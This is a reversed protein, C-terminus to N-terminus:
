RIGKYSSHVARTRERWAGKETLVLAGEGSLKFYGKRISESVAMVMEVWQMEDKLGIWMGEFAIAGMERQAKDPVAVLPLEPKTQTSM